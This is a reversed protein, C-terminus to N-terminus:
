PYKFANELVKRHCSHGKQFVTWYLAPRCASVIESQLLISVLHSRVIDDMSYCSADSNVHIYALEVSEFNEFVLLGYELVKM